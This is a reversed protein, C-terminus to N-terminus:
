QNGVPVSKAVMWRREYLNGDTSPKLSNLYLTSLCHLSRSRIITPTPSDRADMMKNRVALYWHIPKLSVVYLCLGWISHSFRHNGTSKGKFCDMSCLCLSGIRHIEPMDALTRYNNTNRNMELDVLTNKIMIRMQIPERGLRTGKKRHITTFEQVM